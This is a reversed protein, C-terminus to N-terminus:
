ELTFGGDIILNQGTIYRNLESSLFLVAPAIDDDQALKQMPIKLAMEKMGEIGLVKRTLETDVFGPSIANVLIGYPALDIAMTRTAGILGAKSATYANRGEKSVVGFISAINIIYGYRNTIMQESVKSAIYIPANLNTLLIDDLDNSKIKQIPAIKNIGANNICIDFGDHDHIIDDIRKKWNNAGIHLSEYLINTDTIWDCSSMSTGTIVVKAGCQYFAAAIKKGIGRTGGTILVKKDNFDFTM